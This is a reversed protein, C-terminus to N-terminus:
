GHIQGTTAGHTQVQGSRGGAVFCQGLSTRSSSVPAVPGGGPRGLFLGARRIGPPHAVPVPPPFVGPQGLRGSVPDVGDRVLPPAFCLGEQFWLPSFGRALAAREDADVVRTWVGLDALGCDPEVSTGDPKLDWCWASDFQSGRGDVLYYVSASSGDVYFTAGSANQTGDWTLLVHNWCGPIYSDSATTHVLTRSDFGVRFRLRAAEGVVTDLCFSFVDASQGGRLVWNDAVPVMAGPHIRFAISLPNGAVDGPSEFRLNKSIGFAIAM